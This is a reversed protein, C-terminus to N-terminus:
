PRKQLRIEDSSQLEPSLVEVHTGDVYGIEIRETMWKGKRKIQIVGSNVAASPIMLAERTHGIEIVVDATMGPLVGPDLAPVKVHALFEDERPFLAIVEGTLVKNRISEFSVKAKMGTKVRIAAEQELSLEIFCDSLDEVRIIPVQPLATEGVKTKVLTVTGSVPTRFTVHDQLDLLPSGKAVLQGEDVYLKIVSSLVGIVLDYHHHSKVKGLSYVAETIPGKQPHISADFSNRFYFFSSAGLLIVIFIFLSIFTSRKM